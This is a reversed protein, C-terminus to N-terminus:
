RRGQFRLLKSQNEEKRDKEKKQKKVKNQDKNGNDKQRILGIVQRKGYGEEVLVM